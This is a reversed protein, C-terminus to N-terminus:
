GRLIYITFAVTASVIIATVSVSVTTIFRRSLRRENAVKKNLDERADELRNSYEALKDFIAIHQAHDLSRDDGTMRQVGLRAQAGRCYALIDLWDKVVDTIPVLHYHNKFAEIERLARLIGAEAAEYIARQAHARAKILQSANRLNGQVDYALSLHYGAYRMENIAPIGAQDRYQQVKKCFQDAREYDEKFLEILRPLDVELDTRPVQPLILDEPASM